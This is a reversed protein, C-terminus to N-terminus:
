GLQMRQRHHPPNSTRLEYEATDDAGYSFELFLLITEQWDVEQPSRVIGTLLWPVGEQDWQAEAEPHTGDAFSVAVASDWTWSGLEENLDPPQASAVGRYVRLPFTLDNLARFTDALAADDVWVENGELHRRIAAEQFPIGHLVRVGPARVGRRHIWGGAWSTNM